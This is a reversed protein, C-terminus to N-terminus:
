VVRRGHRSGLINASDLSESDELDVQRGAFQAFAAYFHAELALGKLDECRAPSTTVRSSKCFFSQGRRCRRPSRDCGSCARDVLNAFRQAIRSGTRAVDLRYGRLPYRKMAGSCVSVLFASAIGEGGAAFVIWCLVACDRANCGSSSTGIGRRPIVRPSKASM